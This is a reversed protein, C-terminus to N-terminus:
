MNRICCRLGGVREERRKCKNETSRSTEQKEEQTIEQQLKHCLRVFSAPALRPFHYEAEMYWTNEGSWFNLEPLPFTIQGSGKVSFSNKQLSVDLMTIEWAVYKDRYMGGIREWTKEELEETGAAEVSSGWLAMAGLDQEMLCRNYQFLMLYIVFLVTGIVVPFVMAAEVTFYANGEEV